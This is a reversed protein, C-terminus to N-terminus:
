LVLTHFNYVYIGKCFKHIFISRKNTVWTFTYNLTFVNNFFFYNNKVIKKIKTFYFPLPTLLKLHKDIMKKRREGNARGCNRKKKGGKARGNIASSKFSHKRTATKAGNYFLASDGTAKLQISTGSETKTKNQKITIAVETRFM